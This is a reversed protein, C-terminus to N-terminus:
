GAGLRQLLLAEALCSYFEGLLGAVDSTAWPTFRAICWNADQEQLQEVIM